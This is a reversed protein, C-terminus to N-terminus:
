RKLGWVNIISGTPAWVRVINCILDLKINGYCPIGLTSTPTGGFPDIRAIVDEGNCDVFVCQMTQSFTFTLVTDTGNQEPLIEGSSFDNSTKIPNSQTGTFQTGDSLGVPWRNNHSAPLQQNVQLTGSLSGSTIAGTVQGIIPFTGGSGPGSVVQNGYGDMKVFKAIGDETVGASIIGSQGPPLLTNDEVPVEQGEFDVLVPSSTM